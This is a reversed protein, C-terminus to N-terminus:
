RGDDRLGCGCQVLQRGSVEVGVVLGVDVAIHDHHLIDVALKAPPEAAGVTANGLQAKVPTPSASAVRMPGDRPRRRESNGSGAIFRVDRLRAPPDAMVVVSLRWKGRENPSSKRQQRRLLLPRVECADLTDLFSVTTVDRESFVPLRVSDTSTTM